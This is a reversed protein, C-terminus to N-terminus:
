HRTDDKKLNDTSIWYEFWRAFTILKIFYYDSQSDNSNFSKTVLNNYFEFLKYDFLRLYDIYTSLKNEPLASALFKKIPPTFGMKKRTIIESPLIPEVMKRMLIKDKGFSVKHKVPIKQSFDIFRYDLFPSRVEISNAMSTRDVKVLYNDSLTNSRLDYIRLAEALNNEAMELAEGLKGKSFTKFIKPKYRNNSFLESYFEDKENLSLKLLEAIKDLKPNLWKVSHITKLLSERLFTPLKMLRDLTYGVSYIPYGGFIEDGGDGSLVVTVHRQALRCINYTPYSSYDSFPEDFIQPYIELATMFDPNTFTLHHHKTKFSDKVINIFPTEDYKNEDFGMSFTHLNSLETFHRMEAVVTSSDLGGSLFAGVPVDSRMRLRVADKILAEGQELLVKENYEKRSQQIEFFKYKKVFEATDLDFLLNTGAEVKFVNKYITKPAPIYGLAFYLKVSENDINELKNIQLDEHTLISKLESAFILKEKLNFYYLPKVGLRDRSFFLTQKNIDYICFAWMGNFRNVCKEGWEAFAALIVETDSETNFTYGLSLLQKKLEVYNYIEGNFVIKFQSQHTTYTLPQSSANSLDIISLRNHGLSVKSDMYFDNGDPGRHNLSTIM